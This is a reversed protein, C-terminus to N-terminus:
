GDRHEPAPPWVGGNAAQALKSLLKHTAQQKPWLEDRVFRHNDGHMELIKWEYENSGIDEGEELANVIAKDGIGGAASTVLKAFSGWMGSADAPEGGCNRIQSRLKDARELHSTQAQSLVNQLYSGDDLKRLAEGYSEIASLEGRLLNNLTELEGTNM